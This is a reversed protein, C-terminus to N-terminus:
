WPQLEFQALALESLWVLHERKNKSAIPPVVWYQGERHGNYAEGLRLGTALLFRLIPGQAIDTTLVFQIEDHTLVRTRAASPPGVMAATLQAAPSQKIWGNAVGYGFLSKFVGLLARAAPLGGTRAKAHKSVRDRYARIVTAIDAPDIDRVR